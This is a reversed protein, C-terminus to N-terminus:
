PRYPMRALVVKEEGPQSGFCCGRSRTGNSDGDSLSFRRLGSSASIAVRSALRLSRVVWSSERALAPRSLDLLDRWVIPAPLTASPAVTGRVPWFRRASGTFIPSDSTRVMRGLPLWPASVVRTSITMSSTLGSPLAPRTQDNVSRSFSKWAALGCESLRPLASTQNRNALLSPARRSGSFAPLILLLGSSSAQRSM